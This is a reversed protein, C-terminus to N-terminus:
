HVRIVRPIMCNESLSPLIGWNSDAIRLVRNPSNDRLFLIEEKAYELNHKRLTNINGGITCYTCDYPCGRVTEIQPVLQFRVLFESFLGMLYPSPIEDLDLLPKVPKGTILQGEFLASCGGIPEKKVKLRHSSKMFREVINSFPVEGDGHVIIDVDQHDNLLALDYERASQACLKRERLNV